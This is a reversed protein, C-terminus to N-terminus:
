PVRRNEIESAMFKLLLTTQDLIDTAIEPSYKGRAHMTDNRWANKVSRMYASVSSLKSLRTKDRKDQQTGELKKIESDLRNTIKGWTDSLLSVLEITGGEDGILDVIHPLTHELACMCHFVCATHREFVLCKNAESLDFLCDQLENQIVKPVADLFFHDYSSPSVVFCLTSRLEHDLVNEIKDALSKIDERSPSPANITKEMEDYLYDFRGDALGKFGAKIIALHNQALKLEPPIMEPTSVRSLDERLLYLSHYAKMAFQPWFVDIM